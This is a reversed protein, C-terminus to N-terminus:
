DGPESSTRSSPETSRGEESRAGSESSSPTPSDPDIDVGFDVFLGVLGKATVERLRDYDPASLDLVADADIREGFSWEAVLAVVLLDNAENLADLDAVSMSFSDMLAALEPNKAKFDEDKAAAAMLKFHDQAESSVRIWAAQIPRRARESVERPQKLKAWGGSPLEVRIM